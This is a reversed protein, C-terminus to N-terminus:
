LIDFSGGYRLLKTETKKVFEIIRECFRMEPTRSLHRPCKTAAFSRRIPSECLADWGDRMINGLLTRESVFFDCPYVDGNREVVFYGDCRDALICQGAIGSEVYAVASDINRVSVRGVDGDAIWTDMVGCLFRDWEAPTISERHDTYQQWAGGLNDRLHRYTGAPDGVNDRTVLALVNYECGAERLMALGRAVTEYTPEGSSTRRHIDHVPAPGDASVGCLWGEEAMLRAMAPTMLTANTQVAVNAKAGSRVLRGVADAVHRYFALGALLPEGGQFTISYSDFPLSLYSELLRDLVASPMVAPGNPYLRSKDLYFCYDCALNCAAGVPKVLLAFPKM